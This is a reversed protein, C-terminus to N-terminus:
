RLLSPALPLPHMEEPIRPNSPRLGGRRGCYLPLSTFHLSTFHFYLGYCGTAPRLLGYCATAARLLTRPVRPTRPTGTTRPV